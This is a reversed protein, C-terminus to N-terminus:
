DHKHRADATLEKPMAGDIITNICLTETSSYKHHTLKLHEVRKSTALVAHLVAVFTIQQPALFHSLQKELQKDM